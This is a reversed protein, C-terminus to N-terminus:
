ASESTEEHEARALRAPSGARDGLRLAAWALRRLRWLGPRRVRCLDHPRAFAAAHVGAALLAAVGYPLPRTRRTRPM